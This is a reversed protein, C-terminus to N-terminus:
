AKAKGLDPCQLTASDALRLYWWCKKDDISGNWADVLTTAETNGFEPALKRNPDVASTIRAINTSYNDRSEAGLPYFYWYTGNGSRTPIVHWRVRPDDPPLTNGTTHNHKELEKATLYTGSDTNLMLYEDKGSKGKGAYAFQWLNHPNNWWINIATGDERKGSSLSLCKTTDLYSEIRYVNPGIWDSM